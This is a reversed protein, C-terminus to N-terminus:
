SSGPSPDHADPDRRRHRELDWQKVGRVFSYCSMLGALVLGHAGDRWGQRWFYHYLFRAVTTAAIGIPNVRRGHFVMAHAEISTYRDLKKVWGEVSEHGIHEIPHKLTGLHGRIAVSEHIEGTWQAAQRRFLRLHYQPYWGGHEIWRGFAQERHPIRYANWFKAAVAERIERALAPPVREDCDVSLVWEHTAHDAAWQRQQSYGDFRRRFVRDTITRAIQETDDTTRDDVVVVIEDAWSVSGLCAGIHRSEDRAIVTVSISSPQVDTMM